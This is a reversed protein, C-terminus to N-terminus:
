IPAPMEWAAQGIALVGRAPLTVEGLRPPEALQVPRGLDEGQWSARSSAVFYMRQPMLTGVHGSPTPGALEVRGMGFAQAAWERPRIMSQHRWTSTPMKAGMVNMAALAATQEVAVTWDLAPDDTTIRLTTPDSWEVEIRATGVHACAQGYYRPCATALDPGDVYISWDGAPDRHWISRYPGFTGDLFVRLALVHGSDFPLGFIGWGSAFEAGAWPAQRDPKTAASIRAPIDLM